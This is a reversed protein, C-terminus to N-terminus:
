GGAPQPPGAPAIPTGDDSAGRWAALESAIEAREEPLDYFDPGYLRGLLQLAAVCMRPADRGPPLEHDCIDMATLLADEAETLEEGSGSEILVGALGILVEGTRLPQAGPRDRLKALAEYYLQKAKARHGLELHATALRKLEAAVRVDQLFAGKQLSERIETEASTLWFRAGILFALVASSSAVLLRHRAVFKRCQYVVNARRALIPENALHRRIDDAMAAASQYRRARDKELAKLAVTEIDGRLTRQLAGPRPPPQECIVHVAEHLRSRSVRYPLRGTMVEFFMVGLSYVDSRVDIDDIDGRAEEPSMYPLTGMFRGFGTITTPQPGDPDTIRALGFDLVKPNGEPEVLINSPKLDRHIVGRQHAYNIADCIRCFLAMRDRLSLGRDRVYTNLPVGHVLEMAFFHQGDDTRGAEYIAAIGPHKLRALTHAERQFLKVRLDDVFQGGRVVKVAVTRRPSQQEAEYVIGMGGEGLLRTITYCAVTRPLRPAPSPGHSAVADITGRIGDARARCSPCSALHAELEAANRDIGSWLEEDTVNCTM